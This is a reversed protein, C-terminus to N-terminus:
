NTSKPHFFNFYNLLQGEKVKFLYIYSLCILLLLISGLVCYLILFIKGLKTHKNKASFVIGLILFTLIIIDIFISFFMTLNFLLASLLLCTVIILYSISSSLFVKSINKINPNRKSMIILTIATILLTIFILEYGLIDIFSLLGLVSGGFKLFHIVYLVLTLLWHACASLGLGICISAGKSLNEIPKDVYINKTKLGNTYLDLITKRVCEKSAFINSIPTDIYSEDQFVIKKIRLTGSVSNSLINTSLLKTTAGNALSGNYNKSVTNILNNNSDYCDIEYEIGSILLGSTNTFSFAINEESSYEINNIRLATSNIVRDKYIRSYEETDFQDKEKSYYVIKRDITIENNESDIIKKLTITLNTFQSNIVVGYESLSNNLSYPIDILRQVLNYKNDFLDIDVYLQGKVYTSQLEDIFRLFTKGDVKDKLIQLSPTEIIIDYRKEVNSLREQFIIFPVVTCGITKNTKKSCESNVVLTELNDNKISSNVNSSVEKKPVKYNPNAKRTKVIWIICFILYILEKFMVVPLLIPGILM